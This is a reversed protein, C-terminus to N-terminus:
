TGHILREISDRRRVSGTRKEYSGKHWESMSDSKFLFCILIREQACKQRKNKEVAFGLLLNWMWFQRRRDDTALPSPFRFNLKRNFEAESRNWLFFFVTSLFLLLPFIIVSLVWRSYPHRLDTQNDAPLAHLFAKRLRTCRRNSGRLPWANKKMDPSCYVIMKHSSNFLALCIAHHPPKDYPLVASHYIPYLNGSGPAIYGYSKISADSQKRRIAIM